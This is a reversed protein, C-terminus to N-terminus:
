FFDLCFPSINFTVTDVDKRCNGVRVWYWVRSRGVMLNTKRGRSRKTIVRFVISRCGSEDVM